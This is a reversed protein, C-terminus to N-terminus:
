KWFIWFGTRPATVLWLDGNLELDDLLQGYDVRKLLAPWVDFMQPLSLIFDEPSKFWGGFTLSFTSMDDEVDVSSWDITRLTIFEGNVKKIRDIRGARAEVFARFPESMPHTAIM